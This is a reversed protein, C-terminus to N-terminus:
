RVDEGNPIGVLRVRLPSPTTLQPLTRLLDSTAALSRRLMALSSRCSSCRALHAVVRRRYSVDLEDAIYQGLCRQVERHVLTAPPERVTASATTTSSEGTLM